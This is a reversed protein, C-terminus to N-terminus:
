VIFHSVLGIVGIIIGVVAILMATNVSSQDAKGRTEDRSKRLDTIDSCIKDYQGDVREVYQVHEAKTFFTTTQDKLTERFENMKSLRENLIERALITAEKLAEIKLTEKTELAELKINIKGELDDLRKCIFEKISVTDESM